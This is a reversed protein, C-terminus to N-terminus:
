LVPVLPPAPVPPPSWPPATPSPSSSPRWRPGGEPHMQENLWNAFLDFPSVMQQNPDRNPDPNPPAGSPCQRTAPPPPPPPPPPRRHEALLWALYIQQIVQRWTWLGLPDVNSIPNGGAYTYTSYSGGALGIPDSEIYRGTQPDYDREYNYNLGTEADYYQGPFRLNYVFYQGDGVPNQDVFGNGFPDSTWAWVIANDSPRTVRRPTNLQDSHVYYIDVGGNTDPRLTAVPIDGLWVTEEILLGTANYEGILHGAEDYGFVFTGNASTKSARQGLANLVFSPSNSGQSVATLRNAGDYVFSASGTSTTNGAGDYAYTRILTGATSAIQNSGNSMSVTMAGGVVSYSGPTSDTRSNISGDDNYTYTSTGASAIQTAWGDLSYSRTTTTGNGWVWGTVPGFPDYTVGTLLANGNITIGVVQHNTNYTYTILQGSPTTESTQDANTFGYGTSLSVTGVTQVKGIVRGVADYTWSLTQNSDSASTLHGKGYSGADYAFALTQDIVGSDQAVMQTVRNLADYSYTLQAGRGDIVGSLNGAADYSYTSVGSDPSNRLTLEKFGDFNYGTTLTVPDVVSVINDNADYVVNAIGGAPDTVQTRRNLPDYLYTSTRSLPSNVSIPNGESDYSFSTTVAGTGASDIDQYLQSLANYVSSHTRHLTGTADYAKEATRNGLGDLTFQINNGAGDAIATLRHAADYTYQLYSADPLTARQLVGTPYYSFSTTEGAVQRATVREQADYTLTHAVGNPDTISLPLGYVNYTNVTTVNGLADTITQIQGCQSGAACSYYTYTTTSNVDSRPGHATLLQGYSNYSYTWTRTPNPASTTDTITKTLLNGNGGYTFSTIRGAQTISDPERFSADWVTTIKRQATGTAPTYSALNNPCTSGPALGEVRVLELGRVPDNAYCTLNGNYDVRSSVFGSGDYTTAAAEQCTPCQSGSISTVLNADGERTFTFTRVAGLADTDTVTGDSNYTLNHANAAGAQQSATARGQSDYSWTTYTNGSEDIEATIGNPLNTDGYTYQRTTGDLKTVQVLRGLVDYAYQVNAGGNVTVDAISGQTNRAITLSNGFSDTVGNLNGNGDYSCTQLVNARSSISQLVGSGNYLEVNDEDDTVTFGSGTVSLRLLVGPQSTPVGNQMTFRIIQGDDRILDYELPTPPPSAPPNSQIPLTGIQTTGNALVCVGNNFTATATTWASVSAQITAFGSTCAEEATPYQSSVTSSAGLWVGVPYSTITEVSRGYSHRWGQVGDEGTSDASNYYRQFAITSSPGTFQIDTETKYVGGTAPNIPDGVCNASCVQSRPPPTAVVWFNPCPISSGQVPYLTITTQRPWPGSAQQVVQGGQVIASFDAAINCESYSTASTPFEPFGPAVVSGVFTETPNSGFTLGQFAPCAGSASASYGVVGWDNYYWVWNPPQTACQAYALLPVTVFALAVFAVVHFLRALRIRAVVSLLTTAPRPRLWMPKIITM